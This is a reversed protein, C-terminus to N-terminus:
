FAGRAGIAAGGVVPGISVAVHPAPAAPKSSLAFYIAGGTAVVAVLLSIDAV